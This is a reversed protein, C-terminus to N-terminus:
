YHLNIRKPPSKKSPPKLASTTAQPKSTKAPKKEPKLRDLLEKRKKLTTKGRAKDLKKSRDYISGAGTAEKRISDVKSLIEESRSALSKNKDDDQM